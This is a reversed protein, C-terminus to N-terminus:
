VYEFCFCIVDVLTDPECCWRTLGNDDNLISVSWRMLARRKLHNGAMRLFMIKPMAKEAETNRNNVWWVLYKTDDNLISFSWRMLACRKAHNGAMRLFHVIKPTTKKAETNRNNVSCSVKHRWEIHVIILADLRMKHSPKWLNQFFASKRSWHKRYNAMPKGILILKSIHELCSEVMLFRKKVSGFASSSWKSSNKVKYSEFDLM